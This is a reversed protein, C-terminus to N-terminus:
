RNYCDRIMDQFRNYFKIVDKKDIYGMTMRHPIVEVKDVPDKYGGTDKNVEGRDSAVTIKVYVTGQSFDHIEMKAKVLGHSKMQKGAESDEDLECITLDADLGYKFGQEILMNEIFYNRVAKKDFDIKQSKEVPEVWVPIKITQKNEGKKLDIYLSTTGIDNLTVELKTNDVYAIHHNDSRVFTSDYSEEDTFKITFVDGEFGRISPYVTPYCVKDNFLSPNVPIATITLSLDISKEEGGDVTAKITVTVTGAKKATIDLGKELKRIVVLGAGQTVEHSFSSANTNIAIKASEGEKLQLSDPSIMLSTTTKSTDKTPTVTPTSQSSDSGSTTTEEAGQVGEENSQTQVNNLEDQNTTNAM